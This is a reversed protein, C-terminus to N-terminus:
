KAYAYGDYAIKKSDAQVYINSRATSMGLETTALGTIRTPNSLRDVDIKLAENKTLLQEEAHKMHVLANTKTVYAESLMVSALYCMIGIIFLAIVQHRFIRYNINTKKIPQPPVVVEDLEWAYSDYQRALMITEGVDYKLRV